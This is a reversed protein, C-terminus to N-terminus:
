ERLNDSSQMGHDTEPAFCAEPLVPPKLESRLIIFFGKHILSISSQFSPLLVKEGNLEFIPKM